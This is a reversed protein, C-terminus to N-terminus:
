PGVQAASLRAVASPWDPAMEFPAGVAGNDSVLRTTTFVERVAGTLGCIVLRGNPGQLRKRLALLPWFAISSVYRTNSLDIVVRWTGAQEVLALLEEKLERAQEEGEIQTRTVTLILVGQELRAELYPRPEPM